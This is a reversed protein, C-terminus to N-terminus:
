GTLMAIEQKPDANGGILGLLLGLVEIGGAAIANTMACPWSGSLMACVEVGWMASAGSARVYITFTLHM